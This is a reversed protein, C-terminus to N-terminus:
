YDYRVRRGKINAWEKYAGVHSGQASWMRPFLMMFEKMYVYQTKYGTIAYHDKQGEVRPAPAYQAHGQKEVPICM